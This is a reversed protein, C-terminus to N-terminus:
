NKILNGICNRGNEKAKYLYKDAVQINEDISIQPNIKTCGFSMTVKIEQGDFHCVSKAVSNRIREAVELADSLNAGGLIAIFEEGGWRYVSDMDRVANRLVDSVHVLVADGGNHDYTDNVKKFFDIDCIILSVDKDENFLMRKYKTQYDGYFAFRNKLDTLKDHESAALFLDSELAIGCIFAAVSLRKVDEIEDFGGDEGLKNIVQFAGIVEGRCTSVPMVLISKTVYGTEKDVEPNFFTNNYPDNTVIPRNDSLAKGVLGDSDNIVIRKTGTAAATILKHNKKDWRWFSARDADTLMRGLDAFVSFLKLHNGDENARMEDYMRQMVSFINNLLIQASIESM